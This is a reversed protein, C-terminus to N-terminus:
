ARTGPSTTSEFHCLHSHVHPPSTTPLASNWFDPSIVGGFCFFNTRVAPASRLLERSGYGALCELPCWTSNGRGGLALPSQLWCTISWPLFLGHFKIKGVDQKKALAAAWAEWDCWLAIHPSSGRLARGKEILLKITHENCVESDPFGQHQSKIGWGMRMLRGGLGGDMHIRILQPNPITEWQYWTFALSEYANILPLM